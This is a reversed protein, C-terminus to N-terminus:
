EDLVCYQNGGNNKARYLARDALDIIIDPLEGVKPQMSAIGISITVKGTRSHIHTIDLQEVVEKMKTAIKRAGVINTDPLLVVFEEGGYRAIMDGPRKLIGKLTTAIQNLVCDGAQHGYTDNYKKFSDVDIMMLSLEQKQRIARRWEGSLNSNFNRRNPINTLGDLFSLHQLLENSKVLEEKQLEIMKLNLYERVRSTYIVRSIILALVTMVSCNLIASMAILWDSQFSWIMIGMVCWAFSFIFISKLWDLYCFSAVVLIAMTYSTAIGPGTSKIVGTLISFGILNFLIFVLGCYEHFKGIGEVLAPPRCIILFFVSFCIIVVRIKFVYPAIELVRSLDIYEINKLGIQDIYIQQIFIFIVNIIILLWALINLRYINTFILTKELHRRHSDPIMTDCKILKSNIKNIM